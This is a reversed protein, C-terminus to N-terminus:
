EKPTLASKFLPTERAEIHREVSEGEPLKVGRSWTKKGCASCKVNERVFTGQPYSPWGNMHEAYVFNIERNEVVPVHEGDSTKKCGDRRPPHGFMEETDKKKAM